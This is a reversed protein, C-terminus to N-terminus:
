QVSPVGNLLAEAAKIMVIASTFPLAIGDPVVTTNDAVFPLIREEVLKVIRFLQPVFGVYKTIISLSAVCPAAGV